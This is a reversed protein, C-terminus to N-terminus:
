TRPGIGGIAIARSRVSVIRQYLLLLQVQGNSYSVSSTYTLHQHLPRLFRRPFAHSRQSNLSSLALRAWHNSVKEWSAVRRITEKILCKLKCKDRSSHKMWENRKFEPIGFNTFLDRRKVLLSPIKPTQSNKPSKNPDKGASCEVANSRTAM